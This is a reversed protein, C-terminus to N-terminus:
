KRAAIASIEIKAGNVLAAVQVTTRTPKPDPFFTTYVKNMAAFDNIDSLYVNVAVVDSMKFGAKTAVRRITELAARTQGSIGEELKGNSGTGQQGAVYLTNGVQIGDSFPLPAHAATLNVARKAQALCPPSVVAAMMLGLAAGITLRRLSECNTM